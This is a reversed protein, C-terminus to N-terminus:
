RGNPEIGSGDDDSDLELVSEYDPSDDDEHELDLKAALAKLSEARRESFYREWQQWVSPMVMLDVLAASIRKREDDTMARDPWAAGCECVEVVIARCARVLEHPTM